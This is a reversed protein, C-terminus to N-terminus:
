RPRSLVSFPYILMLLKAGVSRATTWVGMRVSEIDSAAANRRMCGSSTRRRAFHPAIGPAFGPRQQIKM